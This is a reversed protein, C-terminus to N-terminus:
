LEDIWEIFKSNKGNRRKWFTWNVRKTIYLDFIIGLGLLFWFNHLWIVWLIYIFSVIIFCILDKRPVKM